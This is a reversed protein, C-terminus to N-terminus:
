PRNRLDLLLAKVDALARELRTLRETIDSLTAALAVPDTPMPQPVPTSIGARKAVEHATTDLLSALAAVERASLERQDKWVLTVEENDIGLARAVDSRAMGNAALRADFWEADFFLAM